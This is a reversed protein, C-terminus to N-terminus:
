IISLITLQLTKGKYIKVIVIPYILPATTYHRQGLHRMNYRRSDSVDCQYLHRCRIDVPELTAHM